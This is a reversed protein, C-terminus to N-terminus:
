GTRRHPFPALLDDRQRRTLHGASVQEDAWATIGDCLEDITLGLARAVARPEAGHRLAEAATAWRGALLRDTLTRAAALAQLAAWASWFAPPTVVRRMLTTVPNGHHSRWAALLQEPSWSAFWAPDSFFWLTDRQYRTLRHAASPTGPTGSNM